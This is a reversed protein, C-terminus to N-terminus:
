GQSLHDGILAPHRQHRHHRHKCKVRIAAHAHAYARESPILDIVHYPRAYTHFTALTVMTVLTM